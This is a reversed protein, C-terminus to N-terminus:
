MGTQANSAAAGQALAARAAEAAKGRVGCTHATHKGKTCALCMRSAPALRKKKRAPLSKGASRGSSRTNKSASAGGSSGRGRRPLSDIFGNGLVTTGFLGGVDGDSPAQAETLLRRRKNRVAAAQERAALEADLEDVAWAEGEPERAGTVSEAAVLQGCVFPSPTLSDCRSTPTCFHPPTSREAIGGSRTCAHLTIM